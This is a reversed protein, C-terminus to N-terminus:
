LALLKKEDDSFQYSEVKLRKGDLTHITNDFLSHRKIGTALDYVNIQISGNAGYDKQTYQTGNKLANFGPVSRSAFTGKQMIDELTIAKKQAYVTHALLLFFLLLSRQMM